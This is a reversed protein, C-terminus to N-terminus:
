SSHPHSGYVFLCVVGRLMFLIFTDMGVRLGSAMLDVVKAEFMAIGKGLILGWEGIQPSQATQTNPSPILRLGERAVRFGPGGM